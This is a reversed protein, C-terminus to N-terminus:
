ISIVLLMMQNLDDSPFIKDINNYFYIFGFILVILVGLNRVWILSRNTNNKREIMSDTVDNNTNEIHSGTENNKEKIQALREKLIKLKEDNSKKTM